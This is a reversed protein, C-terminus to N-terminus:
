PSLRGHVNSELQLLDDKLHAEIGVASVFAGGIAVRVPEDSRAVSQEPDLALRETEIVVKRRDEQPVSELRVGGRLDLFSGDKAATAETATLLWPVEDAASYEVRVDHLGLGYGDPLEVARAASIRYAVRGTEDTGIVRAGLFYYGSPGPADREREPEPPSTVRSLYLTGAAMAALLLSGLVNRLKPYM